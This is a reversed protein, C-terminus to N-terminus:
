NLLYNIDEDSLSTKANINDFIDSLDKKKEQLTLVKEEITNKMVLKYITVKKKQGIRYARDSAQDEAAVNWWPDLHIVIDAGILNLGTGGAKLSVLMVKIDDETNFRNALGTRKAASTEGTISEYSIKQADLLKSLHELVSTFSSFLLIKHDKSVAERILLTTYDLKTSLENYELFCSPDVCLQRLRTLAALVELGGKKGISSKEAMATKAKQLYADYLKREKEDMVLNQTLIIKGPLETLVDDKKRKLLFPSVINELHKREKIDLDFKGYIKRFETFTKLYGPMLFDFLSWLDMLSNQIPTGTLAFKYDAKLSKVARSKQSLANAIYQGEDLILFGFEKNAFLDLDIRLSDYSIIYTTEDGKKMKLLKERRDDKGNSLVVVKAKPNWKHFEDEWNFTLSKPSVVLNPKEEHYQSLFAIMELTKGLGMDDALIGSLHNEKLASLWQVGKIQYPRLINRYSEDLNVEQEEYNRVREFLDKLEKSLAVEKRGQLKLAQYVPIKEHKIDFDNLLSVIDQGEGEELMLIEDHLRYYKKKKKYAALIQDIEEPSYSNSSFNLSFWDQNSEVIINIKSVPKKKLKKVEDSVFVQCTEKLKQLPKSIFNVIVQEDSVAGEDVMGYEILANKFSEVQEPCVSRFEELSKEDGKVFYRTKCVLELRDKDLDIYYEIHDISKMSKSLFTQEVEVRDMVMPVLSQSIERNFYRTSFMPNAIKFKLLELETENRAKGFYAHSNESDLILVEGNTELSVLELSDVNELNSVIEGDKDISVSIDMVGDVLDYEVENIELPKFDPTPSEQTALVKMAKFLVSKTTKDTSYNYSTDRALPSFADLIRRSEDDLFDDGYFFKENLKKFNYKFKGKADYAALEFDRIYSFHFSLRFYLKEPKREKEEAVKKTNELSKMLRQFDDRARKYDNLESATMKRTLIEQEYLSPYLKELQEDSLDAEYDHIFCIFSYVLGHGIVIKSHAVDFLKGESDVCFSCSGFEDDVFFYKIYEDKINVAYRIKIKGSKFQDFLDQVYDDIPSRYEDVNTKALYM